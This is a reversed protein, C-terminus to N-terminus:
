AARAVAEEATFEDDFVESLLPLPLLCVREDNLLPGTFAVAISGAALSPLPLPIAALLEDDVASELAACVPM